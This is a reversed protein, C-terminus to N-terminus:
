RPDSALLSFMVLDERMGRRRRYLRLVGERTYGAKSAVRLSAANDPHTLLELREFGLTELAHRSLLKTARSAVSRGRAERAVWYGIEARHDEWDIRALGISGLLEDDHGVIALSLERGAARDRARTAIFDRAHGQEYPAPVVTWRSIEPDQCAATLAPADAKSGGRLRIEEDGLRPDPLSLWRVSL